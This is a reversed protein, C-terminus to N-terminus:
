MISFLCRQYDIISIYFLQNEYYIAQRCDGALLSSHNAPMHSLFACEKQFQFSLKINPNPSHNPDPDLNPKPALLGNIACQRCLIEPSQSGTAPLRHLVNIKPRSQINRFCWRRHRTWSTAAEM